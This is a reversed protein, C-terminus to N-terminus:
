ATRGSGGGGGGKIGGKTRLYAALAEAMVDSIQAGTRHCHERLEAALDPVVYCTLRKVMAGSARTVPTGASVPVSTDPSVPVRAGQGVPKGPARSGRGPGHEVLAELEAASPTAAKRAVPDVDLAPRKSPRAKTPKTRKSTM